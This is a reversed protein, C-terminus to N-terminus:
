SDSRRQSLRRALSAADRPAYVKADNDFYVYVDRSGRRRPRRDSVTRADDVQDGHRWADIKRAWTELVSPTYGSVYLEKDGHLRVYVFDATVDEMLPWRGATDAVVLAIDNRRLLD